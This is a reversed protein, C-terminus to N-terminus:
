QCLGGVNNELYPNYQNGLNSDVRDPMLAAAFSVAIVAAVLHEFKM